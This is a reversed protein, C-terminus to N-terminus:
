STNQFLQSYFSHCVGKGEEGAVPDAWYKTAASSDKDIALGSLSGKRVTYAYHDGDPSFRGFGAQDMSAGLRKKGRVAFSRPWESNTDYAVYGYERGDPSLQPASIWEKATVVTKVSSKTALVLAHEEVGKASAIMRKGDASFHPLGAEMDILSVGRGKKWRAKSTTDLRVLQGEDDEVEWFGLGDSSPSFALPGIFPARAVEEGDLEVVWMSSGDNPKGRFAYHAGNDAFIPPQLDLYANGVQDNLATHPVGQVSAIWAVRTGDSSWACHHERVNTAANTVDYVASQEPIKAILHETFRDVRAAPEHMGTTSPSCALGIWCALAIMM